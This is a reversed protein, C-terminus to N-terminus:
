CQEVGRWEAREGDEDRGGGIGEGRWRLIM